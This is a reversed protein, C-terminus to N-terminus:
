CSLPPSVYYYFICWSKPEYCTERLCDLWRKFASKTGIKCDKVDAKLTSISYVWGALLRIAVPVPTNRPKCTHKYIRECTPNIPLVALATLALSRSRVPILVSMAKCSGLGPSVKAVFTVNVPFRIPVSICKSPRCHPIAKPVSNVPLAKPLRIQVIYNFTNPTGLNPPLVRKANVANTLNKPRKAM